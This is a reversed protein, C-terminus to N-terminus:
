LDAALAGNEDAYAQRPLADLIRTALQGKGGLHLGSYDRAPGLAAIWADDDGQIQTTSKSPEETRAQLRGDAVEFWHVTREEGDGVVAEIVCSPLDDREELLAPLQRIVADARVYEDCPPQPWEHRMGWRALGAAIPLLDMGAATLTVEVRPPMERFRERTLLGLAIMQSLHHDLVGSSIGPLRARLASLRLREQSLALVILLTWRDGTAALGRALPTWQRHGRVQLKPSAVREM